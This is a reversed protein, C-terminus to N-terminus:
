KLIYTIRLRKTYDNHKLIYKMYQKSPNHSELLMERERNEKIQEMLYDCGRLTVMKMLM